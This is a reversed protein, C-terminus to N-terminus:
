DGRKIVIDSYGIFTGIHNRRAATTEVFTYYCAGDPMPFEFEKGRVISDDIVKCHAGAAGPQWIVEVPFQVMVKLDKRNQCLGVGGYSLKKGNCHYNAGLSHHAPNAFTIFGWLNAGTSADYAAIELPCDRGYELKPDPVYTYTFKKETEWFKIGGGEGVKEGYWERACSRITLLDMNKRSKIELIYSKKQPLVATGVHSVGDVSFDISRIYLVDPDLKQLVSTCGFLCGFIVL